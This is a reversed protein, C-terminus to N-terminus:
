FVPSTLLLFPDQLFVLSLHPTDQFGLHLDPSRGLLLPWWLVTSCFIKCLLTLPTNIQFSHPFPNPSFPSSCPPFSTLDQLSRLVHLCSGPVLMLFAPVSTPSSSFMSLHYSSAMMWCWHRLFPKNAQVTSKTQNPLM